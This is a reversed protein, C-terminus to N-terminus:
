FGEGYRANMDNDYQDEVGLRRAAADYGPATPVRPTNGFRARGARYDAWERIADLREAELQNREVERLLAEYALDGPTPSAILLRRM